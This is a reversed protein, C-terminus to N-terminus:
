TPPEDMRSAQTRQERPAHYTVRPETLTAVTVDGLASEIPDRDRKGLGQPLSQAVPDRVVSTEPIVTACQQKTGSKDHESSQVVPGANRPYQKEPCCENQRAREPGGNAIKEVLRRAMTPKGKAPWQRGHNDEACDYQKDSEQWLSGALVRAIPRRLRHGLLRAVNPETPMPQLAEIPAFHRKPLPWRHPASLFKQNSRQKAM